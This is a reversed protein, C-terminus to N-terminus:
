VAKENLLMALSVVLGFEEGFVNTYGSCPVGISTRRLSPPCGPSCVCRMLYAKILGVSLNIETKFVFFRSRRCLWGNWRVESVVGTHREISTESRKVSFHTKPNPKRNVFCFFSPSLARLNESSYFVIHTKCLGGHIFRTFKYARM